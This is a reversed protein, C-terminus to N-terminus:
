RKTSPKTSSAVPAPGSPAKKTDAKPAPATKTTKEPKNM